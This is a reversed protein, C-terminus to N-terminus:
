AAPASAPMSITKKAKLSHIEELEECIHRVCLPGEYIFGTYIQVLSSGHHLKEEADKGTFIGGVGIIPMKGKTRVHIYRVIETSPQRLPAGSLGGMEKCKVSSKDITTNTAIIGQLGCETVAEIVGDIESPTMDPAIKVLMPVRAAENNAVVLPRLVSILADRHQLARLGPTNPSSINVAFYDAYKHLHKYCAVYDDPANELPTAKGKGINIGVPIAPWQRAKKLAALRSAVVTAGDNPFGMRNILAKDAALRFIRPTPNGPQPLPTVTGIEMYGFGLAEWGPLALANKDFGAALGIPNRFRLGFVERELSPYTGQALRSITSAAGSRLMALAAHHAMEPSMTFLMPRVLKEYLATIM